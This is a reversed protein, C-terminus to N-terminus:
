MRGSFAESIKGLIWFAFGLAASIAFIVAFAGVFVPLFSSFSTFFPNLDLSLNFGEAPTEQAFAPMASVALMALILLRDSKVRIMGRVKRLINM